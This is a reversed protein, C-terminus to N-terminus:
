SGSLCLAFPDFAHFCFRNMVCIVNRSKTSARGDDIFFFTTARQSLTRGRASFTQRHKARAYLPDHPKATCPRELSYDRKLGRNGGLEPALVTITGANEIVGRRLAFTDNGIPFSADVDRSISTSLLLAAVRKGTADPRESSNSPAPTAAISLGTIIVQSIVARSAIM